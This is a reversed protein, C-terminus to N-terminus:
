IGRISYIKWNENIKWLKVNNKGTIFLPKIPHFVFSNFTDTEGDLTAFCVPNITDIRWLKLRSGPCLTALIPLIPHFIVTYVNYDHGILTAYCLFSQHSDLYKDQNIYWLKVSKDSSGTAMIPLFPHFEACIISCTHGIFTGIDQISKDDSIKLMIEANNRNGIALYPLKPHFVISDSSWTYEQMTLICDWFKTTFHLHIGNYTLIIKERFYNQDTM